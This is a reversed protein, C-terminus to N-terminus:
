KKFCGAQRVNRPYIRIKPHQAFCPSRPNGSALFLTDGSWKILLAHAEMTQGSQKPLDYDVFCAHGAFCAFLKSTTNAKSSMRKREYNM